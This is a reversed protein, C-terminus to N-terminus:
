LPPRRLGFFRPGNWRTGTITRAVESLSRYRQGAYVCGDQTLEVQHLVGRFERTLRSGPPPAPPAPLSSQRLRRRTEGDLDGYAATQLRWAISLRLLERSRLKPPRGWRALWFARLGALDLTGLGALEDELEAGSISLERRGAAMSAGM